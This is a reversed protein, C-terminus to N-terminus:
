RRKDAPGFLAAVMPDRRIAPATQRLPSPADDCLRHFRHGDPSVFVAIRGGPLPEFAPKRWRLTKM